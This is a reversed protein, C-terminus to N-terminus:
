YSQRARGIQIKERHILDCGYPCFNEIHDKKYTDWNTRVIALSILSRSM